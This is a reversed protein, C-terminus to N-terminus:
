ENANRKNRKRKKIEVRRKYLQTSRFSMYNKYPKFDPLYKNLYNMTADYALNNVKYRGLKEYFLENMGHIAANIVDDPIEIEGRIDLYFRSRYSDFGNYPEKFEPLYERVYYVADLYAQEASKADKLKFLFLNDFGKKDNLVQYIHKPIKM